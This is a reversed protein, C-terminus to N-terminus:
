LDVLIKCDEMILRYGIMQVGAYDFDPLLQITVRGFTSMSNAFRGGGTSIESILALPVSDLFPNLVGLDRPLDRRVKLVDIAVNTLSRRTGLPSVEVNSAFLFVIAVPDPPPNDPPLSTAVRIGSVSDVVTAIAAMMSQITM